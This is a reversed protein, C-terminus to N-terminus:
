PRQWDNKYCERFLGSDSPRIGAVSLHPTAGFEAMRFIAIGEEREETILTTISSPRALTMQWVVQPSINLLHSLLVGELGFHCVFVVTDMNPEEARYVYGDRVYGHSALTEDFRACVEDYYDQLVPMDYGPVHRWGDITFLEEHSTWDSPLRDWGVYVGNRYPRKLLSEDWEEEPINVLFEQLWDCTKMPLGKAELLKEITEKARGLISVYVDSIEINKLYETLADRARYGRETLSDNRYDPDGHRIIMLKM